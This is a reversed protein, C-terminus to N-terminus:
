FKSKPLSAGSGRSEVVKSCEESLHLSMRKVQRDPLAASGLHQSRFQWQGREESLFPCFCCSPSLVVHGAVGRSPGPEQPSLAFAGDQAFTEKRPTPAGM